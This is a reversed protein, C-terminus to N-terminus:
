AILDKLQFLSLIMPPTLCINSSSSQALHPLTLFKDGEQASLRLAPCLLLRQLQRCICDEESTYSLQRGLPYLFGLSCSHPPLINGSVMKKKEAMKLYLGVSVLFSNLGEDQTECSLAQLSLKRVIPTRSVLM